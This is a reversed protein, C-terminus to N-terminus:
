EGIAALRNHLGRFAPPLPVEIKRQQNNQKSSGSPKVSRDLNLPNKKTDDTGKM